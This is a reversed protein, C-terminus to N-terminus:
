TVYVRLRLAAFVDRTVSLTPQPATYARWLRYAYYGCKQLSIIRTM